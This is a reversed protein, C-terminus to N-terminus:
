VLLAFPLVIQGRGRMFAMLTKCLFTKGSGGPGDLYFCRNSVNGHDVASMINKFADLQKDNLSVLRDEGDRAEQVQDYLVGEPLNGTPIPLGIALCSLRRQKLITNIDLLAKNAAIEDDNQRPYDLTLNMKHDEWLKLPSAPQCFCCIFAFMERLQRPMYYIGADSLCRDWEDDSELLGRASTAAKFTEHVVLGVTRLSEFSTAGPIHLLLLRLYFREEDRLSVTYMRSVIM